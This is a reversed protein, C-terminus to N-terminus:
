AAALVAVPRSTVIGLALGIATAVVLTSISGAVGPKNIMNSVVGLALLTSGYSVMEAVRDLALARLEAPVPGDEAAQAAAVLKKHHRDLVTPGDAFLVVLAVIATWVWADGFHFKDPASSLHMLWSGLGFLLVVIAGFAPGFRGPKALTRIEAVTSARRMLLSSSHLVAALAFACIAVLVHLFLVVDVLHM